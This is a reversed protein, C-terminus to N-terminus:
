AALRAGHLSIGDGIRHRIIGERRLKRDYIFGVFTRYGTQTAASAHCPSRLNCVIKVSVAWMGRICDFVDNAILKGPASVSGFGFTPGTKRGIVGSPVGTRPDICYSLRNM